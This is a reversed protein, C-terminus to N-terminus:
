KSGFWSSIGKKAEATKEVVTKDFKDVAQNLDKAATNKLEDIRVEAEKRYGDVKRDM